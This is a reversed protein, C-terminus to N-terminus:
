NKPSYFIKQFVEKRKKKEDSCNFSALFLCSFQIHFEEVTYRSLVNGLINHELLFSTM